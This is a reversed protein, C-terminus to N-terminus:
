NKSPKIIKNPDLPFKICFNYIFLDILAFIGYSLSIFFFIRTALHFKLFKGFFM